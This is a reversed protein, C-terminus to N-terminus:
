LARILAWVPLIEFYIQTTKGLSKLRSSVSTLVQFLYAGFKVLTSQKLLANNEKKKGDINRSSFDKCRLSRSTLDFKLSCFKTKVLYWYSQFISCTHRVNSLISQRLPNSYSDDRKQKGYQTRRSFFARSFCPPRAFDREVIRRTEAGLNWESIQRPVKNERTVRRVSWAFSFSSM